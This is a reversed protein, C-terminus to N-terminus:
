INNIRSNINTIPYESDNNSNSKYVINNIYPNGKLTDYVPTNISQREILLNSGRTPPIENIYNQAINRIRPSEYNEVTDRKMNNKYIGLENISAPIKDAGGGLLERNTLNISEEIKENPCFNNLNKRSEPHSVVFSAGGVYDKALVEEVLGSRTRDNNKYVISNSTNIAPGINNNACTTERITMNSPQMNEYVTGQTLKNAPGTKNNVSTTERITMNSPQMNEYVTGQTLKNAPGTKNNVSTTERITM